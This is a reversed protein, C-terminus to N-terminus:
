RNKYKCCQKYKLGSGCPCPANPKIAESEKRYPQQTSSVKITLKNGKAARKAMGGLHAPRITQERKVPQAQPKISLIGRVTVQRIEEIMSDFLEAGRVRFETIPDRQAYAQLGISGKLDDMMDLHNMWAIDVVRLLINR